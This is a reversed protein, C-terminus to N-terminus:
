INESSTWPESISAAARSAASSAEAKVLETVTPANPKGRKKANAARREASREDLLRDGDQKWRHAMPDGDAIRRAGDLLLGLVMGKDHDTLEALEVLGGYDYLRRNRAKREKERIRGEKQSIKALLAQHQQRLKDLQAKDADLTDNRMDVEKYISRTASNLRLDNM